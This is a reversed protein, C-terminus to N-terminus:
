FTELGEIFDLANKIDALCGLGHELAYGSTNLAMFLNQTDQRDPFVKRHVKDWLEVPVLDSVDIVTKDEGFRVLVVSADFDNLYEEAKEVAQLLDNCGSITLEDVTVIGANYDYSVLKCGTRGILM